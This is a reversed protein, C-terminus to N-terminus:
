SADLLTSNYLSSATVNKGAVLPEQNVLPRRLIIYVIGGPLVEDQGAKGDHFEGQMCTNLVRIVTDAVDSLKLQEAQNTKRADMFIQCGPYKPNHIRRPLKYQSGQRTKGSIFQLTRGSMPQCLLEMALQHCDRENPARLFQPPFCEPTAHAINFFFLMFLVIIEISAM